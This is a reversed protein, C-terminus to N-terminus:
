EEASKRAPERVLSDRLRTARSILHSIGSLEKFSNNGGEGWEATGCRACRERPTWLRCLTRHVLTPRHRTYLLLSRVHEPNRRDIRYAKNTKRQVWRRGRTWVSVCICACSYVYM